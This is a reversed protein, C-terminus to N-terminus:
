VPPIEFLDQAKQGHSKMWEDRISGVMLVDSAKGNKILHKRMRGEIKLGVKECVRQSAIHHESVGGYIRQFNLKNFGYYMLMLVADTIIGKGAFEKDGLLYAIFARQHIWNIEQFTINGIHKESDNDFIGLLMLDTNSCAHEYYHEMRRINNPFYSRETFTDLSLDDLWSFYESSEQIQELTLGHLSIRKGVLFKKMTM